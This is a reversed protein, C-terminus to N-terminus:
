RTSAVRDEHARAHGATAEADFPRPGSGGDARGLIRTWGGPVLTSLLGVLAGGLTLWAGARLQSWPLHAPDLSYSNPQQPANFHHVVLALWMGGAALAVLAALATLIRLGSLAGIVMAFGLVLLAFGVSRVSPTRTALTYVLMQSFSTHDLGMAPRPGRAGVWTLLGGIAVAGGCVSAAVATPVRARARTVM